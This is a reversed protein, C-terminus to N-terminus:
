PASRGAATDEVLDTMGTTWRIRRAPSTAWDWLIDRPVAAPITIVALADEDTVKTREQRRREDWAAGLDAVWGIVEGVSEFTERHEHLGATGPDDLGMARVLADTYLSYAAIGLEESVHNKLLRPVVIVDSGVLEETGAM